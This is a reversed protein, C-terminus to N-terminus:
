TREEPPHVHARRGASGQRLPRGGHRLQPGPRPRSPRHRRPDGRHFVPLAAFLPMDVFHPSLPRPTYEATEDLVETLSAIEELVAPHRWLHAIGADFSDFGGGDRWFTFFLMRALRQERIPLDDLLPPAPAASFRRLFGLREPDDAHTLRVLQRLLKDEDPGPPATQLGASRRLATWSSRGRYIEALSRDSERLYDALSMDGVARIEAALQPRTLKVQSRVNDLVIQQAQRTLHIHTGAPLFPFGQQVQDALTSRRGGTIALYRLDFRFKRHQNGIFDLVTLCDKGPSRRLGRGLQQLFITASETPRLMLVTDVAPVDVGENFLDVAFVANLERERLRRLVDARERRDTGADVAAARIGHENCVRAM